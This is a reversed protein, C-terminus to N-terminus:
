KGLKSFRCAHFFEVEGFDVFSLVSSNKTVKLALLTDQAHNNEFPVNVM